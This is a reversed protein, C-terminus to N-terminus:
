RAMVELLGHYIRGALLAGLVFWFVLAAVVFVMSLLEYTSIREEVQWPLRRKSKLYRIAANPGRM